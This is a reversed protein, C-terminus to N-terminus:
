ADLWVTEYQFGTLAIEPAFNKVQPTAANLQLRGVLEVGPCNDALYNLARKVVAKRQNTDFITAQEDAMADFTRDSWGMYNRSANSKFLQIFWVGPDSLAGGNGSLLYTFGRNARVQGSVARDIIRMQADVVGQSLRKWQAQLLTGSAEQYTGQVNVQTLFEFRLPNAASYGAAQLLSMAERVADTKPTKFALHQRYEEETLDWFSMAPPLMGGLQAGGLFDDAWSQRLEDHDVLLRLAKALRLDTFPEVTVNAQAMVPFSDDKAFETNAGNTQAQSLYAKV